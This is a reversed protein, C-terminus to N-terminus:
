CWPSKALAGDCKPNRLPIRGQLKGAGEVSFEEVEFVAGEGLTGDDGADVVVSMDTNVSPLESDSRADDDDPVGEAGAATAAEASGNEHSTLCRVHSTTSGAM